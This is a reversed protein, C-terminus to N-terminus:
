AKGERPTWLEPVRQAEALQRIWDRAIHDDVILTGHLKIPGLSAELRFIPADVEYVVLERGNSRVLKVARQGQAGKGRM